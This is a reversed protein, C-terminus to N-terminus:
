PMPVPLKKIEDIDLAVRFGVEVSSETPLLPQRATLSAQAPPTKYSGGRVLALEPKATVVQNGPYVALPTSVWEAANGLLDGVGEPTTGERYHGVPALHGENGNINARRPYFTNGWPFQRNAVGRAAFEWEAESPLRYALGTVQQRWALFQRVDVLSVATVPWDETDPRPRLNKWNPPAKYGTNAIFEAYQANTVELKGILFAPLTALHSPMELVTEQDNGMTFSGGPLYVLGQCAAWGQLAERYFLPARLKMARLFYPAAQTLERKSLLLQGMEYEIESQWDPQLVAAKNLSDQAKEYYTARAYARGLMLQLEADQTATWLATELPEIAAKADAYDGTKYALKSRM